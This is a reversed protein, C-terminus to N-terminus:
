ASVADEQLGSLVASQDREVFMAAIQALSRYFSATVDSASQALKPLWLGLHRVLFDHQARRYPRCDGSSELAKAEKVALFQMFELEATVSDELEGAAQNMTLGFQKFFAKLEL